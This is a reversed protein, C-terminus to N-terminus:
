ATSSPAVLLRIINQVLAPYSRSTRLENVFGRFPENLSNNTENGLRRSAGGPAGIFFLQSDRVFERCMNAEERIGDMGGIFFAAFPTTERLMTTRMDRLSSSATSPILKGSPTFRPNEGQTQPTWRIEGLSWDFLDQISKLLFPKFIQSQYVVVPLGLAGALGRREDLGEPLYEQAVMLVLPTVTPHGGFVLCGNSSLVGRVVAVIAQSIEAADATAYDITSQEESPFSASLFIAKRRLDARPREPIPNNDLPQM